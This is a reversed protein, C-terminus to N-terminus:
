SAARRLPGLYATDAEAICAAGTDVSITVSRSRPLLLFVLGAAGLTLVSASAWALRAGVAGTLPGGAVLGLGLLLQMVCGINTFVRGRMSDGTTQQVITMGALLGTMNALGLMVVFVLAVPVDPSAAAAGTALSMVLLSRNYLRSVGWRGLLSAGAVSGLALGIGSCASFLGYSFNGGHLAHKVLVIQSVNILGGAAIALGWGFLIARLARNSKLLGFGDGLDRWHGRSPARESQLAGAPIALLLLASLLFSAADLAFLTTANAVLLLAGALAPGAMMSVTESLGLLSNAAPLEEVDVLNPLGAFVAPRFLVAALSSLAALGVMPGTRPFFAIAVFISANIVDSSILMRRRPLRDALPGLVLGALAGPLLQALLLAGVWTASGTRAYVSVTLGITALWNGFESGLRALFLRRFQRARRLVAFQALASM